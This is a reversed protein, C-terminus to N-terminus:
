PAAARLLPTESAAPWHDEDPGLVERLKAGAVGSGVRFTVDLRHSAVLMRLGERRLEDDGQLWWAGLNYLTSVYQQILAQDAPTVTRSVIAEDFATKALLFQGIQYARQAVQIDTPFPIGEDVARRRLAQYRTVLARQAAVDLPQFQESYIQELGAAVLQALLARRDDECLDRQRLASEAAAAALSWQSRQAHDQVIRLEATAEVCSPHTPPVTTPPIPTAPSVFTIPPVAEPQARGPWVAFLLTFLLVAGGTAALLPLSLRPSALRAEGRHWVIQRRFPDRDRM